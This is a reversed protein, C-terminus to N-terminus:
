QVSMGYASEVLEKYEELPPMGLEKRRQDVTSKNKIPEFFLLGKEIRLQTGYIQAKGQEVLVRDTLLAFEQGTVGENNIYSQKVFPLMKEKFSNDPSHQIILFAASVGSKGVLDATVWSHEDIIEKLKETNKRDILELQSLLDCQANKWGIERIKNRISQDANAMEELEIKLDANIASLAPFSTIFIIFISRISMGTKEIM